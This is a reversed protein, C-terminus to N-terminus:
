LRWKWFRQFTRYQLGELCFKLCNWITWPEIEVLHDNIKIHKEDVTHAAIRRELFGQIVSDPLHVFALADDLKFLGRLFVTWRTPRAQIIRSRRQIQYVQDLGDLNIIYFRIIDTNTM